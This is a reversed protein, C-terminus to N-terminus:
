IVRRGSQDSTSLVMKLWGSDLVAAKKTTGARRRKRRRKGHEM